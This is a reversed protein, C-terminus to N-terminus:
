NLNFICCAIQPAASERQEIELLTVAVAVIEEQKADIVIANNM